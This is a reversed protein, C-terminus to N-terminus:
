EGVRSRRPVCGYSLAQGFFIDEYTEGRGIYVTLQFCPCEGKGGDVPVKRSDSVEEGCHDARM